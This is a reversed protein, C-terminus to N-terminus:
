TNNADNDSEVESEPTETEDETLFGTNADKTLDDLTGAFINFVFDMSVVDINRLHKTYQGLLLGATINACYITTKATCPEEVADENSYLTEAYKAEDETGRKVTLIRTVEASMRSDYFMLGHGSEFISQRALMDDVCCFVIECDETHHPEWAECHMVVSEMDPEVAYIDSMVADVKNQGIQDPRFGQVGVNVEDVKDFDVLVLNKGGCLALQIAVNRGM